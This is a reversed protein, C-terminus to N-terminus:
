MALKRFLQDHLRVTLMRVLDRAAHRWDNQRARFGFTTSSAQVDAKIEVTRGVRFMRITLVFNGLREGFRLSRKLWTMLQKRQSPKLLVNGADLKIM